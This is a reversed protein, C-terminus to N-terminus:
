QPTGSATTTATSTSQSPDPTAVAKLLDDLNSIPTSSGLEASTSSAAEASSSAEAGPSVVANTTTSTTSATQDPTDVAKILDAMNSVTSSAQDASAPPQVLLYRGGDSGLFFSNDENSDRNKTMWTFPTLSAEDSCWAVIEVYYGDSPDIGNSTLDFTDDASFDGDAGSSFQHIAGLQATHRVVDWVQFAWYGLRESHYDGNTNSPGCNVNEGDDGTDLLGLDSLSSGSFAIHLTSTSLVIGADTTTGTTLREYNGHTYALALAPVLLAGSMVSAIKLYGPM